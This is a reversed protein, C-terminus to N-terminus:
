VLPLGSLPWSVLVADVMHVGRRLEMSVLPILLHATSGRCFFYSHFHLVEDTWTHLKERLWALLGAPSDGMSWALSLPKTAQIQYYAMESRFFEKAALLSGCYKKDLGIWGGTLFGLMMYGWQMPQWIPSPPHTFTWTSHIALVSPRASLLCLCRVIGHGWDGGHAVANHQNAKNTKFVHFALPTSLSSYSNM